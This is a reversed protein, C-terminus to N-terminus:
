PSSRPAPWQSLVPGKGWALELPLATLIEITSPTVQGMENRQKLSASAILNQEIRQSLLREFSATAEQVFLKSTMAPFLRYNPGNAEAM